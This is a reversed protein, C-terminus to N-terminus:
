RNSEAVELPANTQLTKQDKLNQEPVKSLCQITMTDLLLIPNSQIKNGIFNSIKLAIDPDFPMDYHKFLSALLDDKDRFIWEASFAEAYVILLGSDRISKQAARKENNENHLFAFVQEIEGEVMPEIVIIKGSNKLVRTAEALAKQSNQHHLSLTFIVIDFFSNPFNLEEGSGIQFDVNLIHTKAQLIKKEDPDIAILSGSEVALLSSIRGDGCGIELVKTNDLNLYNVIKEYIKQDSNEKM